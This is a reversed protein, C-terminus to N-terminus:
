IASADLSVMAARLGSDKSAALRVSVKMGPKLDSLKLPQMRRIEAGEPVSIAASLMDYKLYLTRGEVKDVVRDVEANTMVQGSSMPFQGKRARQWIESSFVNIATATLSGDSERTAAVGLAEGPKISDLTAVERKLILTDGQIIIRSASGDKGTLVLTSGDISVIVGDIPSPSAASTAAGPGSMTGQPKAGYGGQASLILLPVAFFVAFLIAKVLRAPRNFVFSM